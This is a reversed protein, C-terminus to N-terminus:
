RFDRCQKFQAAFGRGHRASVVNRGTGQLSQGHIVEGRHNARPFEGSKSPEAWRCEVHQAVHDLIAVRLKELLQALIRWLSQELHQANGAQSRGADMADVLSEADVRQVLELLRRPIAAQLRQGAKSRSGRLLHQAADGVQSLAARAHEKRVRLEFSPSQEGGHACM